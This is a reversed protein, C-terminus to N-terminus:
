GHSVMEKETIILEEHVQYHCDFCLSGFREEHRLGELFGEEVVRSNLTYFNRHHVIDAKKGCRACDPHKELFQNRFAKWEKSNQFSLRVRLWLRSHPVIFIFSEGDQAMQQAVFEPSFSGETFYSVREEPTM